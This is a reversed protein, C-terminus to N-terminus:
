PPSTPMAEVYEMEDATGGLQAPVPALDDVMEGREFTRRLKTLWFGERLHGRLKRLQRFTMERDSRDRM